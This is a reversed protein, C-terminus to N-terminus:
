KKLVKKGGKIYISGKAPAAVKKGSLDFTVTPVSNEPSSIDNIGSPVSTNIKLKPSVVKAYSVKNDSSVARLKITYLGTPLNPNITFDKYTSIFYYGTQLQSVPMLLGLDFKNGAEDEAEVYINGTFTNYGSNMINTATVRVTSNGSVQSKNLSISNASMCYVKGENDKPKINSVIYLEQSYNDSIGGIGADEPKLMDILYYGNSYGSWGWNVHYYPVEEEYNYGDIVFAHGGSTGFGAMFNPRSSLLEKQIHEHWDPTSFNNPTLYTINNSYGMYDVFSALANMMSGSTAEVGYDAKISAGCAACLTAVATANVADYGCSFTTNLIDFSKGKKTATLYCDSWLNKNSALNLSLAKKMITWGTSLTPKFAVQIRYTGDPVSSAIAPLIPYEQYYSYRPLGSINVPKSAPYLINENDDTIVLQIDGTFSPGGFNYFNNISLYGSYKSSIGFGTVILQERSTTTKDTLNKPAESMYGGLINEWDFVTNACDWTTKINNTKTTYSINGKSTSMREPYRHYAMIMAMATATCGTVTRNGNYLPCLGNFPTSQDFEIDGLLPEVSQESYATLYQAMKLDKTILKGAKLREIYKLLLYRLGEPMNKEDFIDTASYGIVGHANDDASVITFGPKGNKNAYVYFLPEKTGCEEASFMDASSCVQELEDISANKLVTNAINKMQEISRKQGYTNGVLVFLSIFITIIVKKNM